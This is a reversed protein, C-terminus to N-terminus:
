PVILPGATHPACNVMQECDGHGERGARWSKSRPQVGSCNQPRKRDLAESKKTLPNWSTRSIKRWTPLTKCASRVGQQCPWQLWASCWGQEEAEQQNGQM